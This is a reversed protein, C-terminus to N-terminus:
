FHVERIQNGFGPSSAEKAVPLERYGYRLIGETSLLGSRRQGRVHHFISSTKVAANGGVKM